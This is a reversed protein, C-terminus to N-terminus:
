VSSARPLLIAINYINKRRSGSNIVVRTHNYQGQRPIVDPTLDFFLYTAPPSTCDIDTFNVGGLEYNEFFIDEGKFGIAVDNGWNINGCM